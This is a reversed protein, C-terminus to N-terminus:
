LIFHFPLLVLMGLRRMVALPLIVLASVIIILYNGNLFWERLVAVCILFMLMFCRVISRTFKCGFM